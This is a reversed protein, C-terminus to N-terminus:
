VEGRAMKILRDLVRKSTRLGDHEHENTVWYRAGKITKATQLSLNYDVYMDDHYIAAMVPVTNETLQAPDYLQPWDDLEALLNAADRLPALSSDEEFIWPYIMEGTFLIHEADPSFQPFEARM